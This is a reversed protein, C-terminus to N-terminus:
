RVCREPSRQHHPVRNLPGPIHLLRQLARKGSRGTRQVRSPHRKGCETQGCVGLHMRQRLGAGPLRGPGCLPPRTRAQPPVPQLSAVVEKLGASTASLPGTESGHDSGKHKHATAEISKVVRDSPSAPTLLFKLTVAVKTQEGDRTNCSFLSDRVHCGRQHGPRNSSAAKKRRGRTPAAPQVSEESGSARFVCLLGRQDPPLPGVPNAILWSTRSGMRFAGPDEAHEGGRPVALMSGWFTFLLARSRPHTCHDQISM